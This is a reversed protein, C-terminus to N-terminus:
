WNGVDQDEGEGGQAKDAGYTFLDYEGHQGPVRYQYKEGWPDVLGKANTLYPGNWGNSGAPATVLADLGESQNPYHGVELRYLDLASAINHIQTKATETKAKSLYQVVRPAVLGVLLAIIALVVLLELLTFGQSLGRSPRQNGRSKLGACFTTM